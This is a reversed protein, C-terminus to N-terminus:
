ATRGATAGPDPDLCQRLGQGRSCRHCQHDPEFVGAPPQSPDSLLPALDEEFESQFKIGGARAEREMLDVVEGLFASINVTEIVSRTRRAFRLLNQTIRKCRQVQVDIQSMSDDFQERYDADPHPKQSTMDLM